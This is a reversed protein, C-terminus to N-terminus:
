VPTPTVGHRSRSTPLRPPTRYARQGSGCWSGLIACVVATAFAASLGPGPGKPEHTVARSSLRSCTVVAEDFPPPLPRSTSYRGAITRCQYLPPVPRDGERADAAHGRRFRLPPPPPRHLSRFLGRDQIGTRHPEERGDHPPGLDPGVDAAADVLRDNGLEGRQSAPVALGAAPRPHCDPCSKCSSCSNRSSVSLM